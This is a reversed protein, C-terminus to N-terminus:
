IFKDERENQRNTESLDDQFLSPFCLRNTTLTFKGRPGETTTGKCGTKIEGVKM